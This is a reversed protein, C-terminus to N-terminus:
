NLQNLETGNADRTIVPGPAWISIGGDWHVIEMENWQPDPVEAFMFESANLEYTMGSPEFMATFPGDESATIKIRFGPEIM